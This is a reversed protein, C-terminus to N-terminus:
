PTALDRRRPKRLKVLRGEHVAKGSSGRAALRFLYIGNALKQREADLGDWNIQHYGPLLSRETRDYVLRGNVTYVRVTVDAPGAGSLTFSFHTGLEDDFPNPFAMANVISTRGEVRFIKTTTFGTAVV